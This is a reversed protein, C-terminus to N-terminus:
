REYDSVEKKFLLRILEEDSQILKKYSYQRNNIRTCINSLKEISKDNLKPLELEELDSKSLMKNNESEWKKNNVIDHIQNKLVKILNYLYYIDVNIDRIVIFNNPILIGEDDEKNIMIVNCPEKSCIIIDDIRTFYKSDVEGNKEYSTLNNEDIFGSSISAITLQRYKYLNDGCKVKNKYLSTNFGVFMTDVYEKLKM